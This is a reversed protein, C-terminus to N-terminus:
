VLAQTVSLASPAIQTAILPVDLSPDRANKAKCLHVNEQSVSQVNTPMTWPHKMSVSKVIKSSTTRAISVNALKRM